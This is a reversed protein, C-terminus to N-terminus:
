LGSPVGGLGGPLWCPSHHAHLWSGVLIGLPEGRAGLLRIEEGKHPRLTDGAHFALDFTFTAALHRGDPSPALTRYFVTGGVLTEQNRGDGDTRDIGHRKDLSWAHLLRGDPLFQPKRCKRFGSTLRRTRQDKLDLRYLGEERAFVVFLGDPAFVPSQEDLGPTETLPRRLVGTATTPDADMVLEHLDAPEGRGRRSTVVLALGDPRWAPEADQWDLGLTLFRTDGTRLHLLGIRGGMSFAVRQGEPSCAPDRTPETQYTLRREAGTALSRLYLQDEGSRDSVYIIAGPVRPADADRAARWATVTGALVVPLGLGLAALSVVRRRTM